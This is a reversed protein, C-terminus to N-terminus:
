HCLSLKQKIFPLVDDPNMNLVVAIEDYLLKEAEKLFREDSSHLKKGSKQQQIRHYRLTKIMRSIEQRNGGSLIKKYCDKRETENEVWLFDESPIDDIIRNVEEASLVKHLRSYLLQNDLPVFITNREDYVPKLVLYKKIEGNLNKETISTIKCVGQSGYVVTDNVNYM